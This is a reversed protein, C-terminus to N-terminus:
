FLRVITKFIVGIDKMFSRNSIYQLNLELKAPMVVDIYYQRPNDHAELIESENIYAISAVDTLGPRVKFVARQKDNYLATFEPVEPRPGVFSMHGVLINILQPLEDLKSKRLFTGFRTIRKDASGITLTGLKDSGVYMTRFKILRFIKENKGVRIQKYFAGGKSGAAVIVAILVGPILLCCIAFFSVVIDFLRKAIM